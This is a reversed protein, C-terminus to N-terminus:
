QCSCDTWHQKSKLCPRTLTLQILQVSSSSSLWFKMHDAANLLDKQIKKQAHDGWNADQHYAYAGRVVLVTALVAGGIAGATEPNESAWTAGDQVMRILRWEGYEVPNSAGKLGNQIIQTQQLRRGSNMTEQTAQVHSQLQAVASNVERRFDGQVSLGHLLANGAFLAAHHLFHRAHLQQDEFSHQSPSPDQVEMLVTPEIDNAEEHSTTVRPQMHLTHNVVSSCHVRAHQLRSLLAEKEWRSANLPMSQNFTM